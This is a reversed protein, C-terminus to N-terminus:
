DEKLPKDYDSWKLTLAGAIADEIRLAMEGTVGTIQLQFLVESLGMYVDHATCSNGMVYARAFSERAPDAYKKPIHLRKAVAAFCGEPHGIEVDLLVALEKLKDRYQGFVGKLNEVFNEMTAGSKHELRITGGIPLMISDKGVVLKPMINAGSIGVDSSTIRLAPQIGDSDVGHRALALKYADILHSEDGLVWECSTMSHTWSGGAFINKPFRSSIEDMATTFLEPISLPVYLNSMVASVKGDAIRIKTTANAPAVNLCENVIDRFVQRTVHNLATGSIRARDLLTPIACDRLPIPSTNPDFQASNFLLGTSNKHADEDVEVLFSRPELGTKWHANEEREDLFAIMVSADTFSKAVGDNAYPNQAEDATDNDVLRLIPTSNNAIKPENVLGFKSSQSLTMQQQYVALSGQVGYATNSM